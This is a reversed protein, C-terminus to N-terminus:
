EQIQSSLSQAAIELAYEVESLDTVSLEVDGNGWRGLDTIDRCRGKPDDVKDFELNFVLLLKSALPIIDVFNTELKFAIYLKKCERRAAPHLALIDEELRQYLEGIAGTLQTYHELTYSEPKAM